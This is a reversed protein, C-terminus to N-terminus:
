SKSTENMSPFMINRLLQAPPEVEKRYASESNNSIPGVVATDNVFKIIHKFCLLMLLLPILM